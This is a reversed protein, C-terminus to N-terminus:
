IKNLRYMVNKFSTEIRNLSQINDREFEEFNEYKMKYTCILPLIYSIVLWVSLSRLEISDFERPVFQYAICLLGSLILCKLGALIIAAKKISKHHKDLHSGFYANPYNYAIAYHLKDRSINYVNEALYKFFDNFLYPLLCANIILGEKSFNDNLELLKLSLQPFYAISTLSANRKFSEGYYKRYDKLNDNYVHWMTDASIDTSGKVLLWYFRPTFEVDRNVIRIFNELNKRYRSSSTRMELKFYNWIKRIEAKLADSSDKYSANPGLISKIVLEFKADPFNIFRYLDRCTMVLRAKEDLTLYELFNENFFAFDHIKVFQNSCKVKDTEKDDTVGQVSEVPQIEQDAQASEVLQVEQVSEDNGLPQDSVAAFVVPFLFLIFYIVSDLKM